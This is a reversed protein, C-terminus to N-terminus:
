SVSGNKAWRERRFSMLRQGSIRLTSVSFTDSCLKCTAITAWASAAILFRFNPPLTLASRIAKSAIYWSAESTSVPSRRSRHFVEIRLDSLLVLSNFFREAFVPRYPEPLAAPYRQATLQRAHMYRHLFIAPSVPLHVTHMDSIDPLARPRFYHIRAPLFAVPLSAFRTAALLHVVEHFYKNGAEM